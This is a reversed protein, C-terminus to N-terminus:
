SLDVQVIEYFDKWLNGAKVTYTDLPKNGSLDIPNKLAGELSKLVVLDPKLLMRLNMNKIKRMEEDKM